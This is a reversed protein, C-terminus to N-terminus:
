TRQSFETGTDLTMVFTGMILASLHWRKKKRGWFLISFTLRTNQNKKQKLALFHNSMFDGLSSANIVRPLGSHLWQELFM